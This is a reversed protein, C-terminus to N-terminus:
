AETNVVLTQLASQVNENQLIGDIFLKIVGSKEDLYATMSRYNQLEDEICENLITEYESYERLLEEDSNIVKVFKGIVDLYSLRNYESMLGDAEGKYDFEIDTYREM